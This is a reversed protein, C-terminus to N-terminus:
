AEESPPNPVPEAPAAPLTVHQYWQSFKAILDDVQKAHQMNALPASSAHNILAKAEQPSFTPKTM